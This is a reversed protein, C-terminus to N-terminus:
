DCGNEEKNGNCDVRRRREGRDLGGGCSGGGEGRRPPHRETLRKTRGGAGDAGGEVQLHLYVRLGWLLLPVLLAFITAYPPDTTM